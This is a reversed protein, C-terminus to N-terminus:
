FKLVRARPPVPPPPLPETNYRALAALLIEKGQPWKGSMIAKYYDLDFEMNLMVDHMNDFYDRKAEPLEAIKANVARIRQCLDCECSM